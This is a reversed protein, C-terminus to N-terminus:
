SSRSGEIQKFLENATRFCVAGLSYKCRTKEQQEVINAEILMLASIVGVAGCPPVRLNELKKELEYAVEESDLVEKIEGYDGFIQRLDENSVSPDLNFAVLTGNCYTTLSNGRHFSDKLNNPGNGQRCVLFRLKM